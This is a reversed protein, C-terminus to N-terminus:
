GAGLKFPKDGCLESLAWREITEPFFLEVKGYFKDPPPGTGNMSKKAITSERIPIGLVNRVHAVAGRRTLYRPNETKEAATLAPSSLASPPAETLEARSKTAPVQREM